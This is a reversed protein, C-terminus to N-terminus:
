FYVKGLPGLQYCSVLKEQNQMLLAGLPLILLLPPMEMITLHVTWTLNRSLFQVNVYFFGVWVLFIGGWHLRLRASKQLSVFVLFM